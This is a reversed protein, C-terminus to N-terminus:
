SLREALLQNFREAATELGHQAKVKERAAIGMAERMARNALLTMLNERFGEISGEDALLGTVGHEVVMPVGMSRWAVCPLGQLQAELFVMGIPEKWGPWAFVDGALMWRLVEEHPVQGTFHVREEPIGSYAERIFDFEPGGGVVVLNWDKEKMGSLVDALILFNRDKKGKRMMGATVIVPVDGSWHGPLRAKRTAVNGNTDIFTPFDAIKNDDGLLGLLYAHDTPKFCLHLDAMRIGGQAEKRWPLWEGNGGQGTKAAEITLYPISFKATVKSGIWDPAKCYPHYTVWIDPRQSPDLVLWNEIIRDAEALAGAKRDEMIDANSRKSYCIYRSVLSADHGAIEFIRMLNAAILRDGSPIPHDPPKIPAYFAIKRPSEAPM